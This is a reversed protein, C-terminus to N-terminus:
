RFRWLCCLDGAGLAAAIAVFRLARRMLRVSRAESANKGRPELRDEEEIANSGFRNLSSQVMYASRTLGAKNALRDIAELQSERATINIRM